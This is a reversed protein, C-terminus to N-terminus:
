QRHASRPRSSSTRTLGRVVAQANETLTLM